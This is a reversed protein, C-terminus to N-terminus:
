FIFEFTLNDVTLLCAYRLKVSHILIRPLNPKLPKTKGTLSIGVELTPVCIDKQMLDTKSPWEGMIQGNYLEQFM